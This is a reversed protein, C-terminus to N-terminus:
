WSRTLMKAVKQRYIRLVRCQLIDVYFALVYSLGTTTFQSVELATVRHQSDIDTVTDATGAMVM